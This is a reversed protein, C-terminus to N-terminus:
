NNTAWGNLNHLEKNLDTVTQPFPFYEHKGKIFGFSSAPLKQDVSLPHTLEARLHHEKGFYPTGEIFFDDYLQPVQDVVADQCEKAIGWRVIDHFRCTEFWLEYQKEDQLNQLTLPKEPAEARKQIAHLYKEGESIHNNVLCAEAYLLYAEALRAIRFATSNHTDSIAMNRDNPSAINKVEMYIGHAFLGATSKVGRKPDKKKDAFSMENGKEDFDSEWGCLESDYLFEDPTLFTAKRRPGDGDNQYMKEAFRWNIAGGGWGDNPGCITARSGLRDYRWNLVNNTMWRGRQINGWFGKDANGWCNAEFIKEECANGEVHFLDRFRNGPVLAYNPSEVLPKLDKEARVMDGAFVASKGAVFYAFGKTVKYAGEIDQQGKRDDLASVSEECETACWELLSKQSEVNTPKDDANLLRDVLPPRQFTLAAMMHCYARLVRAEAVCRAKVPTDPEVYTIVLNAAYIAKYYRQYLQNLCSNNTDYRFEDFVRIDMHDVYDTGASFVDDASYNLLTFQPQYIGDSSCVNELFQAYAATMADVADQDTKYFNETSSVAKQEIDLLSESCSSACFLAACMAMSYIYKKM